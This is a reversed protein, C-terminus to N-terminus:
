DSRGTWYGAEGLMDLDEADLAIDMGATSLAVYAAEWEESAYAQRGQALLDAADRVPSQSRLPPFSQSLDPHNVQFVHEPRDLDKLEHGGLNQLAVGEPLQDGLLQATITSVIIQGGHGTSLLRACRNLPPGFYDGDREDANGTHMAMRVRFPSLAGWEEAALGLQAELAADLATRPSSFASCFEDGATTFVSGRSSEIAGRIISDHRAMADKMEAPHEEWKRTSAEVDTFLFTVTGTPRDIM